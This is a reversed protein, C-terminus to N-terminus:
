VHGDLLQYITKVGRKKHADDCEERYIRRFRKLLNSRQDKGNAFVGAPFLGALVVVASVVALSRCVKGTAGIRKLM